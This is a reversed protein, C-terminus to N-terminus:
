PLALDGAQLQQQLAEQPLQLVPPADLERAPPPPIMLGEASLLQRPELAEIHLRRERQPQHYRREGLGLARRLRQATNLSQLPLTPSTKM